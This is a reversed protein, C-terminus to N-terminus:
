PLYNGSRTLLRGPSNTAGARNMRLDSEGEFEVQAKGDFYIGYSANGTIACRAVNVRGAHKVV